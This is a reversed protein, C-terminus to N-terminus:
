LFLILFDILESQQELAEFLITKSSVRNLYLDYYPKYEKNSIDQKSTM